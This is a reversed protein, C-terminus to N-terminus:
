YCRIQYYESEIAGYLFPVVWSYMIYLMDHGISFVILYAIYALVFAKLKNARVRKDKKLKALIYFLRGILIISISGGLIGYNFIGGLIGLDELFYIKSKGRLLGIFDTDASSLPGLGLLPHEKFLQGFYDIENIRNLTSMGYEGKTSFTNFFEKPIDTFYLMYGIAAVLLISYFFKKKDLKGNAFFFFVISVLIAMVDIRTQSIYLTFISSIVLACMYIYKRHKKKYYNIMYLSMLPLIIGFATPNIRLIGNRVWNEAAYERAISEWLVTGTLSYYLSIGMRLILSSMTVIIIQNFGKEWCTKKENRYKVNYVYIVPLLLLINTYNRLKLLSDSFSKGYRDYGYIVQIIIFLIIYIALAGVFSNVLSNKKIYNSRSFLFVCVLLLNIWIIMRNLMSEYNSDTIVIKWISSSYFLIFFLYIEILKSPKISKKRILRNNIM